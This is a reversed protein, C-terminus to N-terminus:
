VDTALNNLEEKYAQLFLEKARDQRNSVYLYGMLVEFGTARRYEAVSASKPHNGHTNRGRRFYDGEEESLLPLINEVCLSQKQATVFQRSLKNLKGSNAIGTKILSERVLLEIVADGYYALAAIAPINHQNEAM